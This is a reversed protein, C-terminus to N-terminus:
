KIYFFIAFPTTILEVPMSNASIFSAITISGSTVSLSVVNIYASEVFNVYEHAQERIKEREHM